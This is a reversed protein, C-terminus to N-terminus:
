ASQNCALGRAGGSCVCYGNGGKKNTDDYWGLLCRGNGSCIELELNGDGTLDILGAPCEICEAVQDCFGSYCHPGGGNKDCENKFKICVDPAKTTDIVDAGTEGTVAALKANLNMCFDARRGKKTAFDECFARFTGAQAGNAEQDVCKKVFKEMLKTCETCPVYVEGGLGQAVPVDPVTAGTSSVGVAPTRTDIPTHDAVADLNTNPTNTNTQISNQSDSQTTAQVNSQANTQDNSNATTQVNSQANTQDNTQTNTQAITQTNTQDNTQANTQDSTQANTQANSQANAQDNTQTSTQATSGANNELSGQNNTDTNTDTDTITKLSVVGNARSGDKVILGTHLSSLYNSKKINLALIQTLCFLFLFYYIFKM